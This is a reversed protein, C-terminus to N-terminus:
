SLSDLSFDLITALKKAVSFPPDVLDNEIRSIRGRHSNIQRALEIQEIGLSARRGKITQGLTM